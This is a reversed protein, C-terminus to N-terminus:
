LGHRAILNYITKLSIGLAAASHRRHGNNRKLTVRLAEAQIERLTWGQPIRLPRRTM